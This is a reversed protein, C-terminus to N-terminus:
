AAICAASLIMTANFPPLCSISAQHTDSDQSLTGDDSRSYGPQARCAQIGSAALWRAKSSVGSPSVPQHWGESFVELM